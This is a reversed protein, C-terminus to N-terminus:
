ADIVDGTHFPFRNQSAVSLIKMTMIKQRATKQKLDLTIRIHAKRSILGLLENLYLQIESIHQTQLSGM